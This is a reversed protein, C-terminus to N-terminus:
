EFGTYRWPVPDVAQGHVYLGWHLHPGTASGTAGVTGIVQGAQVFDGEQVNIRSLHLYITAVGQGHDLGVTNGHLKFGQAERGVLAVRGAAAAVVPSGTGGAYDVGRHYYDKAFEGNYYRRIGFESTVPGENPRLFKGNWYKEPTVLKKFADVRDFEQDTGDSGGGRVWISQTQFKRDGLNVSVTQSENGGAVVLSLRGPRDLPTTPLLARFQNPGIPFTQFVQQGLTIQPPTTTAPNDYRAVVSLTDGLKPSNPGVTVQLASAADPLAIAVMAITALGVLGTGAQQLPKLPPPPAFPSWPAARHFGNSLFSVFRQLAM